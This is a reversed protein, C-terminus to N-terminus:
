PSWWGNIFYTGWEYRERWRRERERERERERV